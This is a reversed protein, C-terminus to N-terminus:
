EAGGVSGSLVRLVDAADALARGDPLRYTPWAAGSVLWRDFDATAVGFRALVEDQPLLRRLVSVPDTLSQASRSAYSGDHPDFRIFQTQVPAAALGPATSPTTSRRATPRSFPQPRGAPPIAFPDPTTPTRSNSSMGPVTGVM